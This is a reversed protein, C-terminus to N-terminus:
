GEEGDDPDLPELERQMDEPEDVSPMEDTPLAAAGYAEIAPRTDLLGSKKLEELGPLDDLRELGFHDLFADTTGWTLPKGPTRRRGRPKIWGAQLLVDFPGRGLSVGRIEEIEARTVPQHYGIIALTEVAARGLKRPVEIEHAFHAALDPATRFAWSRGAQVLHIGRDAYLTQLEGLIEQIDVGEPLRDALAKESVPERSAFLIAEIVRHTQLDNETM